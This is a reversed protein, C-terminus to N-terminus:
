KKNGNNWLRPSIRGETQDFKIFDGKYKDYYYDFLDVRKSSICIDYTLKSDKLYKM